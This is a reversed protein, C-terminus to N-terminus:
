SLANGKLPSFLSQGGVGDGPLHPTAWQALLFGSMFHLPQEDLAVVQELALSWAMVAEEVTM